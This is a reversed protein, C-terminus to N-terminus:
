TSSRGSFREKAMAKHQSENSGQGGDLDLYGKKPVIQELIPILRNESIDAVDPIQEKPRQDGDLLVLDTRKQRVMMPIQKKISTASGLPVVNVTSLDVNLRTLANTVLLAALKDEVFIQPVEATAGLRQFADARFSEQSSITARGTLRDLTMMKIADPPLRELVIPSHTAIVFQHKGKISMVEIFEMLESQASPHLSVEPEDLIILSGEGAQLITHVMMAVAYEGSGAFAESYKLKDAALVITHGRIDYLSHEIIGVSTYNRGLIRGIWKLGEASVDIRPAIIREKRHYVMTKLHDDIATKLHRARRRLFAKRANSAQPARGNGLRYYLDFAAVDNRVDRYVVKKPIGKWRTRNRLAHDDSPTDELPPMRQMADLGTTLPRSTEWYDPDKPKSIRTNISEVLAGSKTIYGHIYRHRDDASIPDLNTEFWFSGINEYSPCCQIARLISSKNSGNPGVIATIPYTFDIRTGDELNKFRPFRIHRLFPEYKGDELARRLDDPTPL